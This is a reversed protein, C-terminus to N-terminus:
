GISNEPTLWALAAFEMNCCGHHDVPSGFTITLIGPRIYQEQQKMRLQPCVSLRNWLGKFSFMWHFDACVHQLQCM